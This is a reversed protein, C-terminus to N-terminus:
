AFEEYQEWYVHLSGIRVTNLVQFNLVLLQAEDSHIGAFERMEAPISTTEVDSVSYSMAM